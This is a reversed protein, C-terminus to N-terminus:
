HISVINIAIGSIYAVYARWNVGYTYWYLSDKKTYLSPIAIKGKRIIYYDTLM